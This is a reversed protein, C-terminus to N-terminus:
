GHNINNLLGTLPEDCMAIGVATMLQAKHNVYDSLFCCSPRPLM